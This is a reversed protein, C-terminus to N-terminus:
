ILRWAFVAAAGANEVDIGVVQRGAFGPVALVQEQMLGFGAMMELERQLLLQGAQRVETSEASFGGIDFAPAQIRFDDALLQTDEGVLVHVEAHELIFQPARDPEDHVGAEVALAPGALFHDM